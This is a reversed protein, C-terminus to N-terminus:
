EELEKILFIWSNKSIFVGCWCLDNCRNYGSGILFDAIEVGEENHGLAWDLYLFVTQISANTLQSDSKLLGVGQLHGWTYVFHQFWSVNLRLELGCVM